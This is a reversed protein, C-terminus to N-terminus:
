PKLSTDGKERLWNKGHVNPISSATLPQETEISLRLQQVTPM